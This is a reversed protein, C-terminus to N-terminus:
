GRIVEGASRRPALHPTATPWGIRFATVAQWEAPVLEALSACFRTTDVGAVEHDAMELIQNLPQVALGRTAAALGARQLARGAALRDPTARADRVVVLGFAAATAVHRERTAQLWGEQLQGPSAAPLVRVIVRLLDDLGAADM